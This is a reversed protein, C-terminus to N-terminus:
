PYFLVVKYGVQQTASADLFLRVLREDNPLIGRHLDATGGAYESPAFARRAVVHDSTDTLTLELYPYAIAHAGRNRVTASLV